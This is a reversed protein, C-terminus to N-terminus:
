VAVGMLICFSLGSSKFVALDELVKERRQFDTNISFALPFAIPTVFLNVPIDFSVGFTQFIYVSVEALIVQAVVMFNINQVFSKLTDLTVAYVRFHHYLVNKKRM